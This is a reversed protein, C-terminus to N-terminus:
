DSSSSNICHACLQVGLPTVTHILSSCRFSHRLDQLLTQLSQLLLALYFHTRLACQWQEWKLLQDLSGGPSKGGRWCSWGQATPPSEAVSCASQGAVLQSHCEPAEAKILPTPGHRRVRLSGRWDYLGRQGGAGTGTRRVKKGTFSLKEAWAQRFPSTSRKM